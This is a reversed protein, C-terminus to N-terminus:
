GSSGAPSSAELRDIEQKVLPARSDDPALELFRKYASLATATDNSNLAADALQLQLTANDPELVVLREYIRAANQYARSLEALDDTLGEQSTQQIANQIPQNALAQGLPSSPPLAFDAGPSLAAARIQAEQTATRVRAAEGTYLAGLERLADTDKPRLQSYRQLIPIAETPRGERQLATALERLATADRPSRTVKDRAEELSPGSSPSRGQLIDAVGGPVDSGVGFIVFSVAFM